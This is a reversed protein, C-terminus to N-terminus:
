RLSFVFDSQKNYKIGFLNFKESKETVMVKTGSFQCCCSYFGRIQSRFHRAELEAIYNQPFIYKLNRPRM